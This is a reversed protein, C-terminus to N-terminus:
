LGEIILTQDTGQNNAVSLAGASRNLNLGINGSTVDTTADTPSSALLEIATKVSGSNRDTASGEEIGIGYGRPRGAGTRANAINLIGQGAISRPRIRVITEDVVTVWAKGDIWVIGGDAVSAVPQSGSLSPLMGIGMMSGVYANIVQFHNDKFECNDLEVDASFGISRFDEVADASDPYCTVMTDSVFLNSVATEGSMDVWVTAAIIANARVGRIVIPQAFTHEGEYAIEVGYMLRKDQDYQREYNVLGPMTFQDEYALDTITAGFGGQVLSVMKFGHGFHRFGQVQEKQGRLIIGTYIDQAMCNLYRTSHGSGHSGCVSQRVDGEPFFLDGTYCKGGGSNTVNELVGLSTYGASGSLDVTRRNHHGYIDRGVPAHCVSTQWGYGSGSGSTGYARNAYALECSELTPRYCRRTEIGTHPFGDIKSNRMTVFAGRVAIGAYSADGGTSTFVRDRTLDLRDLSITNPRYITATGVAELTYGDSVALGAPWAEVGWDSGITHDAGTKAVIYREEGAAAGSTITLRRRNYRSDDQAPYSSLTLTRRDGSIASITGTHTAEQFGFVFPAEFELVNGAKAVVKMIQGETWSNRHEAPVLRTINVAVLDGVQVSSADSVEMFTDGIAFNAAVDVTGIETEEFTIADGSGSADNSYLRAGRWDHSGTLSLTSFTYTVDDPWVLAIGNDSAWQAMAEIEATEDGSGTLGWVRVDFTDEAYVLGTGATNTFDPSADTETFAALGWAGRLVWVSGNGLAAASGAEFDALDGDVVNENAYSAALVASAAAATASAAAAAANTQADAIDAAAPGAELQDGTSDWTVARGARSAATEAVIAGTAESTAGVRLTRSLSTGLRQIAQWIRDLETNFPDSKFEGRLQLDSSRELPVVLYVAYIDTGNAPTTLTVVGTGAAGGAGTVTYDTGLVLPTESGSKYVQLWEAQEFFFDLSITSVGSAPTLPGVVLDNATVAM